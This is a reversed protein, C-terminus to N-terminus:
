GIGPRLVVDGLPETAVVAVDGLDKVQSQAAQVGTKEGAGAPFAIESLQLHLPAAGDTLHGARVCRGIRQNRGIVGILPGSMTRLRRILIWSMMATTTARIAPDTM